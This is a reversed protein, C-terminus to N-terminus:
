RRGSNVLSVTQSNGLMENAAPEYEFMRVLVKVVDSPCAM